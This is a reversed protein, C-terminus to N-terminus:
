ALPKVVQHEIGSPPWISKNEFTHVPGTRWVVEQETTGLTRKGAPFLDPRSPSWKGADIVFTLFSHFQIGVGWTHRCPMSLSYKVRVSVTVHIGAPLGELTTYLLLGKCLGYIRKKKQWL